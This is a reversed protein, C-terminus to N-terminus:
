YEIVIPKPESKKEPEPLAPTTPTSGFMNFIGGPKETKEESSPTNNFVDNFDSSSHHKHEVFSQLMSILRKIDDSSDEKTDISIKM